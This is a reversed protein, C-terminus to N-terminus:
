PTGYWTTACPATKRTRSPGTALSLCAGQELLDALTPQLLGEDHGSVRGSRAGPYSALDPVMGYFGTWTADRVIVSVCMQYLPAAKEVQTCGM